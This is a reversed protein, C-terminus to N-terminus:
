YAILFDNVFCICPAYRHKEGTMAEETVSTQVLRPREEWAATSVHKLHGSVVSAVKLVFCQFGTGRPCLM